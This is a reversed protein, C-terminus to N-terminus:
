GAGRLPTAPGNLRAWIERENGDVILAQRDFLTELYIDAAEPSLTDTLGPQRALWLAWDRLRGFGTLLNAGVRMDLVLLRWLTPGFVVDVNSIGYGPAYRGAALRGEARALHGRLQHVAMDLDLSRRARTAVSLRYQVVEGLSMMGRHEALTGPDHPHLPQDPFLAEILEIMPLGDTLVTDPRGPRAVTLVPLDPQPADAHPQDSEDVLDRTVASGRLDLAILVRQAVPCFPLSQLHFTPGDAAMM